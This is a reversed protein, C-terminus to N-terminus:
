VTILWLLHYFHCHYFTRKPLWLQLGLVIANVPAQDTKGSSLPLILMWITAPLNSHKNGKGYIGSCAYSATRGALIPSIFLLIFSFSLHWFCCHSFYFSFDDGSVELTLHKLEKISLAVSSLIINNSYYRPFSCKLKLDTFLQEDVKTNYKISNM